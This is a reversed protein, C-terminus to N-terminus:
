PGFNTTPPRFIFDALVSEGLARDLAGSPRDGAGRGPRLSGLRLDADPEPHGIPARASELRDVQPLWNAFLLSLLKRSREQDNGLRLRARHFGKKFPLPLSRGVYWGIPGGPMPLDGVLMRLELIDRLYM